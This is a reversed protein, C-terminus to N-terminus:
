TTSTSSSPAWACGTTTSAARARGRVRAGRGRLDGGSPVDGRRSAIAATGGRPCARLDVPRRTLEAAGRHHHHRLGHGHRPERDHARVPARARLRPPRGGAGGTRHALHGDRRLGDRVRDARRAADLEVHGFPVTTATARSGSRGGDGRPEDLRQPRRLQVPVGASRRDARRPGGLHAPPRRADRRLELRRGRDLHAGPPRRRPRAGPRPARRPQRRRALDVESPNSGLRVHNHSDIFGPLVTAGRADIVDTDAGALTRAEEDAGVWAIREGEVAVAARRPCRTM